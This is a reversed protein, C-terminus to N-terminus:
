AARHPVFKPVVDALGGEPYMRLSGPTVRGAASNDRTKPFVQGTGSGRLIGAIAEVYYLGVRWRVLLTGIGWLMWGIAVTLIIGESLRTLISQAPEKAVSARPSPEMPLTSQIGAANSAPTASVHVLGQKFESASPSTAPAAAIAPPPVAGQSPYGPPTGVPAASAQPGSNSPYQNAAAGALPYGAAILPPPVAGQSPYGPPPGVAAASAQPGPNSPYQNAAILPPPVAGPSTNYACPAGMQAAPAQPPSWGQNAAMAPGALPRGAEVPPPVPQSPGKAALHRSLDIMAEAAVRNSQDETLVHDYLDMAQKYEGRQALVFAYNTCAQQDSTAARRFMAFSEDRRGMEGLVLALNNAYTRNAPERELARRLCREADPLRSALHYFYGLDNLLEPDDPKLTLARRFHEDAEKFRGKRAYLVALHHEPVPNDPSQKIIELYMHEAQDTQGRRECLQAMALPNKLGTKGDAKATDATSAAPDQSKGWPWSPTACGSAILATSLCALLLRWRNRNM